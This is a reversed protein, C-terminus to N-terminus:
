YDTKQIEATKTEWRIVMMGWWAWDKRYCKTAMAVVRFMESAHKGHQEHTVMTSM